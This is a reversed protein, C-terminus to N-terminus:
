QLVKLHYKLSEDKRSLIILQSLLEEALRMDYANVINSGLRQRQWLADYFTYKKVGISVELIEIVHKLVLGHLKGANYLKNIIRLFENSCVTADFMKFGDLESYNITNYALYIDNGDYDDEEIRKLIYKLKGEREQKEHIVEMELNLRSRLNEALSVNYSDIIDRTYGYEFLRIYKLYIKYISQLEFISGNTHPLGKNDLYESVSMEQKLTKMLIDDDQIKIYKRFEISDWLVFHLKRFHQFDLRSTYNMDYLVINLFGLLNNNLILDCLNPLDFYEREADDMDLKNGLVSEPTRYLRILMFYDGTEKIGYFFKKLEESM